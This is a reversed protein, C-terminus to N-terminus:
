HYIVIRGQSILQDDKRVIYYYVGPQIGSTNIETSSNDSVKSQSVPHGTFDCIDFSYTGDGDLVSVQLLNNVPNPMLKVIAKSQDHPDPPHVVSGLVSDCYTCLTGNAMTITLCTFYM